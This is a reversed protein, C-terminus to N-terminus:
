PLARAFRRLHLSLSTLVFVLDQENLGIVPRPPTQHGSNPALGGKQAIKMKKRVTPKGTIRPYQIRAGAMGSPFVAGQGGTIYDELEGTRVNIPHADGVSWLGQSRGAERIAETAPRLPAWKGSVDDGEAAFRGKARTQLYPGVDMTLFSMLGTTSFATDAAHLMRQVGSSDGIMEISVGTRAVAM